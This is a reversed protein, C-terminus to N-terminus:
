QAATESSQDQDNGTGDQIHNKLQNIIDEMSEESLGWVTEILEAMLVLQPKLFETKFINRYQEGAKPHNMFFSQVHQVAKIAANGRQKLDQETRDKLEILAYEAIISGVMMRRILNAVEKSEKENEPATNLIQNVSVRKTALVNM